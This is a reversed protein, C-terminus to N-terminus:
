LGELKEIVAHLSLDVMFLMSWMGRVTDPHLSKECESVNDNGAHSSLQQLLSLTDKVNKLVGVIGAGDLLINVNQRCNDGHETIVLDSIKKGNCM